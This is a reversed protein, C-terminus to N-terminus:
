HIFSCKQMTFAFQLFQFAPATRTFFWMWVVLGFPVLFFFVFFIEWHFNTHLRTLAQNHSFYLLFDLPWLFITRVSRSRGIIFWLYVSELESKIQNLSFLSAFPIQRQIVQQTALSFFTCNWQIIVLNSQNHISYLCTTWRNFNFIYTLPPPMRTHKHPHCYFSRIKQWNWQVNLGVMKNSLKVVCDYNHIICFKEFKRLWIWFLRGHWPNLLVFLWCATTPDVVGWVLWSLSLM